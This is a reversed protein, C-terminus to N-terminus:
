SRTSRATTRNMSRRPTRPLTQGHGSLMVLVIDRKGLPAVLRWAAAEINALTAQREGSASGLLVTVQFDLKQLEAAVAQVDAEAFQLDRFGPKHYQNVGILLAVKRPQLSEQALSAATLGVVLGLVGGSALRQVRM